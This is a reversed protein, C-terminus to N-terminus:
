EPLWLEIKQIDIHGTMRDTPPTTRATPDTSPYFGIVMANGNWDTLVRDAPAVIYNYFRVDEGTMGQRGPAGGLQMWYRDDPSLRVTWTQWQSNKVAQVPSRDYFGGRGFGTVTHLPDAIQAMNAWAQQTNPDPWADLESIHSQIHHVLGSTEPKYFDRQRVTYRLEGDRLDAVSPFGRLASSSYLDTAAESWSQVWLDLHGRILHNPDNWAAGRVPGTRAGWSGGSGVFRGHKAPDEDYCYAIAGDAPVVAQMEADTQYSVAGAEPTGFTSTMFSGSSDSTLRLHAPDGGFADPTSYFKAVKARKAAEDGANFDLEWYKALAM